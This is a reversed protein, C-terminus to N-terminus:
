ELYGMTVKHLVSTIYTQYPLGEQAALRKIHDLDFRSLRINIRETKSLHQKAAFEAESILRKKQKSPILLNKEFADLISKEEADFNM